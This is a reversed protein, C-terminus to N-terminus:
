HASAARPIVPYRQGAPRSAQRSIGARRNGLRAHEVLQLEQHFCVFELPDHQNLVFVAGEVLHSEFRRELGQLLRCFASRIRAAYMTRCITSTGCISPYKARRVSLPTANSCTSIMQSPCIAAPKGAPPNM